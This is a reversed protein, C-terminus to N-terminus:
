RRATSTPSCSTPRRGRRAPDTTPVPPPRSSPRSGSAEDRDGDRPHRRPHDRARHPDSGIFRYLGPNQQPFSALNAIARDCTSPPRGPRRRPRAILYEGYVRLARRFAAWLLDGYSAFYNYVNTHACGMRRSIARLNVSLSGGEEAILELTTTSSASGHGPRRVASADRGGNGTTMVLPLITGSALGPLPIMRVLRIIPSMTSCRRGRGRDGAPEHEHCSETTGSARAHCERQRTAPESDDIPHRDARPVQAPTRGVLLHGAGHGPSSRSGPAREAVRAMVM